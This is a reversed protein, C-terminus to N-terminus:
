PQKAGQPLPHGTKVPHKAAFDDAQAAPVKVEFQQIINGVVDLVECTFVVDPSATQQALIACDANVLDIIDTVAPKCGSGFDIAAACVM